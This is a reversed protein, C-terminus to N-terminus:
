SELTKGTQYADRAYNAGAYATLNDGLRSEVRGEVVNRTDGTSFTDQQYAQGQVQLTDSLKYRADAGVKRTGTESNAQQGFGFGSDQQRAYVRANLTDSQHLAEVKWANGSFSNILGQSNSRAYEGQIRTQDTVLYNFDMGGLNGSDGVTGQHIYSLGIESNATPKFSARGGGTVKEDSSDKAEYEAMIYVPNFQADRNPIPKKFFLTGQLYDIDYDLYRVLTQSSVVNQSQFRDRSEITIKDSNGVINGRTLRYLGSTGNGRLEDKVFAQSTQSAFANYAFREGHYESKVGTLSRSYRSYETVTLGTDFDGFLAYFQRREIKLYLKSSSAADFGPQTSDAYLTYYATPNIAQFLNTFSGADGNKKATDYALTILTDGRVTGKAYFAVRDGDFLEKDDGNEKLAAVNGSLTKHGLTGQAFGVLIWDRQGPELWARIQNNGTSGLKFDLVAEGSQTTPALEILAIGDRGIEYRPRNDVKGALPDRQIAELQSSSQYPTNLQFEGNVGRRAPQGDKDLFRVAIVPRTKGDALLRSHEAVFEVREPAGAYHIHRTERLVEAGSADTVVLALTNDGEKLGVGRWTSLSVSRAANQQMGDFNLPAVPEGNLSFQVRQGPAHKVALKIAPLAPQFGTQPHLWEVGPQAAALWDADYPLHEVLQTRDDSGPVQPVADQQLTQTRRGRDLTGPADPTEAHLAAPPIPART